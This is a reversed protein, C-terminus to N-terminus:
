KIFIGILKFCHTLYPIHTLILILIVIIVAFKILQKIAGRMIWLTLLLAIVAMAKNRSILNVFSSWWSDVQAKANDAKKSSKIATTAANQVTTVASKVKAVASTISPATLTTTTNTGAAPSDGAMVPTLHVTALLCLGLLFIPLFNKM